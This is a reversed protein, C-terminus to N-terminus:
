PVTEAMSTVPPPPPPPSVVGGLAGVLRATVPVVADLTDSAHVADVSLTPTVPYSTNRPEVFTAVAVPVENVSVPREADVVYVYVTLARSAAPLTEAALLWTEAVVWDPPPPSVVGGLAGAFRVTVPVVADLTDSAHLADVSLTPTVPYSTNRPEVFTVVAVPVENVSAPREADVVYVYVTLARSAAPLTEAALLWTEAVVWDPPPPPPLRTRPYKTSHPTYARLEWTFFTSVLPEAALSFTM